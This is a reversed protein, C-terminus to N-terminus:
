NVTNPEHHHHHHIFHLIIQTQDSAPAEDFNIDNARKITQKQLLINLTSVFPPLYILVFYLSNFDDGTPLLAFGQKGSTRGATSKSGVRTPKTSRCQIWYFRVCWSSDHLLVSFKFGLTIIAKKVEGGQNSSFNLSYEIFENERDNNRTKLKEEADMILCCAIYTSWTTPSTCCHCMHSNPYFHIAHSFDIKMSSGGKQQTYTNAPRRGQGWEALHSQTHELPIFHFSIFFLYKIFYILREIVVAGGFLCSEAALFRDFELLLGASLHCHLLSM